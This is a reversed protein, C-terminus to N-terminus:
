RYVVISSSCEIETFPVDVVAKGDVIRKLNTPTTLWVQEGTDHTALSRIPMELIQKLEGEVSVLSIGSKYDSLLGEHETLWVVGGPSQGDPLVIEKLVDGDSSRLWLRNRSESMDPHGREVIWARGDRPNPAISSACWGAVKERLQLTGDRSIKFIQYGVLWFADSIPDYAMDIARFPLAFLEEGDPSFIVTEGFEYNGSGSCWINGTMPDVMVCDAAIESVCWFPQGTSDLAWLKNGVNEGCYIRNRAADSALHSNTASGALNFASKRWMEHGDIDYAILNDHHPITTEFSPDSDALLLVAPLKATQEVGVHAVEFRQIPFRPPLQESAPKFLAEDQMLETLVVALEKSPVNKRLVHGKPSIIFNAPLTQVLYRSAVTAWQPGVHVHMWPWDNQELTEM